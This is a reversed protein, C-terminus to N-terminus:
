KYAMGIMVSVALYFFLFLFNFFFFSYMNISFFSSKLFYDIFINRQITCSFLYPLEPSINNLLERKRTPRNRRAEQKM